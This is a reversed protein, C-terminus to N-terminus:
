PGGFIMNSAEPLVKRVSCWFMETQRLYRAKVEGAFTAPGATASYSYQHLYPSTRGRMLVDLELLRIEQLLRKISRTGCYGIRSGRKESCGPGM